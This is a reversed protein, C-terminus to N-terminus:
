NVVSVVMGCLIGIINAMSALRGRYIRKSEPVLEACSVYLMAGGALGLCAGIFGKSIGGMAAGWLAGVGMPLGSAAALLFAKWSTIGGAKLPIAVAMGEPVDHIMIVLAVTWGLAPSAEFGSGVAFGEPLNHLAIGAATLIGARLLGRDAVAGPEKGDKRCVAKPVIGAHNKMLEELVALLAVGIIIGAFAPISGGYEFAGPILEFCCVSVMLGAAFELIASLTRKNIDRIFFALVGGAGTGILGTVLGIASIKFLEEM